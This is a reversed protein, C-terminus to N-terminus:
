WKINSFLVIKPACCSSKRWSDPVGNRTRRLTLLHHLLSTRFRTTKHQICRYTWLEKIYVTAYKSWAVVASGCFCGNRLLVRVCCHFLRTICGAELSRSPLCVEACVCHRWLGVTNAIVHSTSETHDASRLLLVANEASDMGRSYLALGSAAFYRPTIKSLFTVHLSCM